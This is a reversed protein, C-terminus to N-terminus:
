AEKVKVKSLDFQNLLNINFTDKISAKELNNLVYWSMPIIPMDGDSGTLIAEAQAYLDYRADVDTTARAKEILADFDKSCWNTNNNGSDCTWLELFNIDDVFDGIWGMRYVDVSSEPPPGLNEIFQAWEMQKIEMNIGLKKWISQVVIAIARHGPDESNTYFTIDTVPDKVKAMYEKAKTMDGNTPLFEQKIGDFGPMGVPTFCTAPNRDDQWIKDVLQQRPIAMGMAIRQNVDPINKVNFGYYYTGLSPYKTYEPMKKLRPLDAPPIGGSDLADVEGSEFAQVRTTGETIIRGDVTTLSVDDANRWEENKVLDVAANHKWSALNFPGNTVINKSETWKDGYKDITGKHVALFSSHASQQVFWPQPSTLTVKLTYDDTAEVGVADKLAASDCAKKEADKGTAPDCGNYEAAGKIGFFQYAYDAGLEPSITRLWSYEFDNATVPDGNTWKGDKRLHFTVVSGEVDWSEALNPVPELDPAPGLKVLPDMINLLINSSTTDTALGPDLSPPEAGWAITMVQETALKGSGTSSSKGCGAMLALAALAALASLWCQKGKM